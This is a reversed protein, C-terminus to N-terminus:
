PKRPFADPATSPGSLAGRKELLYAVAEGRTECVRIERRTLAVVARYIVRMLPTLGVLASAKVWPKHHEALGKIADVLEQNFTVGSLDTLVLVEGRPQQEMFASAEAIVALTQSPVTLGTLDQLVIGHEILRIRDALRDDSRASTSDIM